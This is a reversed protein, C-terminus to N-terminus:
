YHEAQRQSGRERLRRFGVLRLLGVRLDLLLDDLLRDGAIGTGCKSRVKFSRSVYSVVSGGQPGRHAADASINIEDGRESIFSM